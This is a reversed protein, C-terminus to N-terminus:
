PLVWKVTLFHLALLIENTSLMFGMPMQLAPALPAVM